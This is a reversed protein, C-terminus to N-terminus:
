TASSQNWGLKGSDAQMTAAPGTGVTTYDTPQFCAKLIYNVHHLSPEGLEDGCVEELTSCRLCKSISPLWPIHSTLRYPIVRLFTVKWRLDPGEVAM